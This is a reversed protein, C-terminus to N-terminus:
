RKEITYLIDMSEREGSTAELALHRSLRYRLLLTGIRSFVGYAYRAYLRNNVQKGAVLATSDGGSGALSFQDLGLRRGIQETVRGAQALGLSLAAGAMQNGEADTAQNLPRGILLYSLADAESMAPTSFVSSSLNQARGRLHIGATVPGEFTEVVRVARVDVVPNDLPGTFTLTGEQIALKQGYASFTGGELTVQGVASPARGGPMQVRLKGGLRTDLGYLRVRVDDGLVLAVEGSYSTPRSAAQDLGAVKVDESLAVAGEPLERINIDARPVEIRGSIAWGPKASAIVIEPSAWLRYEDWNLLEAAEGSVLLRISRNPGAVGTVEGDLRLTGDGARASGSLGLNGAAGGSVAIDIDEIPVNLAPVVLRGSQWTLRGRIEPSHVTGVAQLNAEVRGSVRDTEPLIAPVWSWESGQLQLTADIGADRSLGDLTLGLEGTVGPDIALKAQITAGGGSLQAGAEAGPISIAVSSGDPQVVDLVTGEQRWEITGDWAGDGRAVDVLARAQGRLGWGPPLWRDLLALPARDVEARVVPGRDGFVLSDVRIVGSDGSWAHPGIEITGTMFSFQMPGSMRWAGTAPETVGAETLVGTLMEDGIRLEAKADTRMEGALWEAEVRVQRTDGGAHLAVDGLSVSDRSLGSVRVALDFEAAGESDAVVSQAAWGAWALRDGEAHGSFFPAPLRGHLRGNARLSGSLGPWAEALRPAAVDLMADLEDDGFWGEARVRNDASRVECAMCSWRGGSWHLDGTASLLAGGLTGGAEIGRFALGGDRELEMEARAELAGPFKPWLAAPDFEALEVAGAAAVGDAWSLWGDFGARAFPGDLVARVAKLGELGGRATGSVQVAHDGPLVAGFGFAASYDAIGGELQLDGKRLLVDGVRWESWEAQLDFSAAGPAYPDVTGRVGFPFPGTVAQGVQLLALSGGVSGSGAWDRYAWSLQGSLPVDGELRADVDSAELVVDAVSLSLTGVRLRREGRQMRATGVHLDAIERAAAGSWAIRGARVRGIGVGVALPEFGLGEPDGAGDGSPLGDIVVSTVDVSPIVLERSLLPVWDVRFELGVARVELTGDRYVLEPIRLGRWLTGQLGRSELAGPLAAAARAFAWRAGAQTNFVALLSVCALLCLLGAGTIARRAWSRRAPSM